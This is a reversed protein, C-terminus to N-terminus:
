KAHVVSQPTGAMGLNINDTLMHFLRTMAEQSGWAMHPTVILHPLHTNVLPNGATPPENTLVDFGAGGLGGYKLAAVLAIVDVLGGRGVNIIVCGMKLSKLEAEGLM